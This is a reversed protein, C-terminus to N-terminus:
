GGFKLMDNLPPVSVLRSVGLLPSRFPYLWADFGRDWRTQPFTVNPLRDDSGPNPSGSGFDAPVCGGPSPSLGTAPVEFKALGYLGRPESGLTPSSSLTAELRHYVGDFAPSIIALGVASLYRTPFNFLM